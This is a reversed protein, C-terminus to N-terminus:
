IVVPILIQDRCKLNCIKCAPCRKMGMKHCRDRIKNICHKDCIRCKNNGNHYLEDEITFIM